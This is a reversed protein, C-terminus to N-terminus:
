KTPIVYIIKDEIITVIVETDPDVMGHKSKVEVKTGNIRATGFPALRTETVGKDGVSVEVTADGVNSEINTSLALKQWTKARLAYVTAAILILLEVGTTILCGTLGYEYYAFYCSGGMAVLGLVGCIGVGPVVLLEAVLFLIGALTLLIIFTLNGM